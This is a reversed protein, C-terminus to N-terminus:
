GPKSSRLHFSLQSFSRLQAPPSKFNNHWADACRFGLTRMMWTTM